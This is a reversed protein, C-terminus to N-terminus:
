KSIRELIDVVYSKKINPTSYKVTILEGSDNVYKDVSAM